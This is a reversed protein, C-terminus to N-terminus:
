AEKVNYDSIRKGERKPNFRRGCVFRLKSLGEENRQSSMGGFKEQCMNTLSDRETPAASFTAYRTLVCATMVLIKM